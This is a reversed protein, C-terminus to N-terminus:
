ARGPRRTVRAPKGRPKRPARAPAEAPAGLGALVNEYLEKVFQETVAEHRIFKRYFIPGFLLDCAVLPPVGPRMQGADQAEQIV